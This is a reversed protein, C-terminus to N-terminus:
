ERDVSILNIVINYLTANGEVREQRVLKCPDRTMRIEVRKCDTEGRKGGGDRRNLSALSVWPLEEKLAVYSAEFDLVRIFRPLEHHTTNSGVGVGFDFSIQLDNSPLVV